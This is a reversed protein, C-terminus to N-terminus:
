LKSMQPTEDKAKPKREIGLPSKARMARVTVHASVLVIILTIAVGTVLGSAFVELM